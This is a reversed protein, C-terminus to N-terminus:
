VGVEDWVVLLGKSIYKSYGIKYERETIPKDWGDGMTYLLIHCKPWCCNWVFDYGEEDYDHTKAMGDYGCLCKVSEIEKGDINVIM